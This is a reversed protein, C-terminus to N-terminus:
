RSATIKTINKDIKTLKALNNILESRISRHAKDLGQIEVLTLEETQTTQDMRADADCDLLTNLVTEAEGATDAVDQM